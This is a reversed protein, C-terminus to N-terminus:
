KTVVFIVRRNAARGAATSNTAVPNAKGFGQASLMDAPVGYQSILANMVTVARRYSLDINKEDKGAADTFGEVTVHSGQFGPANIIAAAKAVEANGKASLKDSATSFHVVVDVKGNTLTYPCTTNLRHTADIQRAQIQTQRPYEGTSQVSVCAVLSGAMVALSALSMLKSASKM